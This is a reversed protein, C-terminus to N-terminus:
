EEILGLERAKHLMLVKNNVEFKDYINRIHFRVTTISVFLKEAIDSYKAGQALLTIIEKERPTLIERSREFDKLSQLYRESHKIITALYEDDQYLTQKKLSKLMDFLYPADEVFPLVIHDFRGMEIAESLKNTGAECGQLNYKAISEHICNHLVGLQNKYQFNYNPFLECIAALRTYDKLLLLCKEYVVYNFAVGEYMFSGSGFNGERLWKPLGTVEQMCCSIYANCMDFATVLVPNNDKEVDHRLSNFMKISESFNGILNLYRMMAFEACIVAGLQEAATAKYIAKYAHLEVNDFDGTELNYEALALSDCGTGCGDSVLAFRYFNNAILETTEKLKGPERYYIYLFHPSGFTAEKNRTEICSCNGNLYKEATKNYM